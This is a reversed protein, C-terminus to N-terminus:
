AKSKIMTIEKNTIITFLKDQIPERNDIATHSRKKGKSDKRHDEASHSKPGVRSRKTPTSFQALNENDSAQRKGKQKETEM